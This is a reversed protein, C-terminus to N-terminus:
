RFVSLIALGDVRVAGDELGAAENDNEDFDEPFVEEGGDHGDDDVGNQIGMLEDDVDDGEHRAAVEGAGAKTLLLASFDKGSPNM